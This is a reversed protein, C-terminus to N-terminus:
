IGKGWKSIQGKKLQNIRKLTSGRRIKSPIYILLWHPKISGFYLDKLILNMSIKDHMQHAGSGSNKGGGGRQDTDFNNERM